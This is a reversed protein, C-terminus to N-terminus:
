KSPSSCPMSAMGTLLANFLAPVMMPRQGASDTFIGYLRTTTSMPPRGSPMTIEKPSITTSPTQSTGWTPTVSSCPARCISRRTRQPPQSPCPEADDDVDPDEGDLMEAVHGM